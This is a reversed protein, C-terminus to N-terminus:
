YRAYELCILAYIMLWMDNKLNKENSIMELSREKEDYQIGFKTTLWRITGINMTKHMDVNNMYEGHESIRIRGDHTESIYFYLDKDGIKEPFDVKIRGDELYGVYIKEKFEKINKDINLALRSERVRTIKEHKRYFLVGLTVVNFFILTFVLENM